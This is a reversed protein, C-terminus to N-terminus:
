GFTMYLVHEYCNYEYNPQKVKFFVIVHVLM